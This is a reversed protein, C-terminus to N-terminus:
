EGRIERVVGQPNEEGVPGEVNNEGEVVDRGEMRLGVSKGDLLTPDWFYILNRRIIAARVGPNVAIGTRQDRSFNFEVITGLVSPNGDDSVSGAINIGNFRSGIITNHRITNGIARPWEVPKGQNDAYLHVGDSTTELWNYEVTNFFLVGIGRNWNAPMEVDLTSTAAYLFVGQRRQNAVRNRAFVNEWGGIWLQLGSMGNFAENGIVLNRAFLTTLLIKSSRDPLVDWARDLLFTRDRREGVRRVQGMGRGGLVVVYYESAIPESEDIDESPPLFPATSPLTLSDPGVAEPEGYYAYRMCTELLIMEGVNQETGAVDGFRPNEGKNYAIYNDDVSGRGTGMWVLRASTPGGGPPCVVTNKEIVCQSLPETRGQIAGTANPGIRSAGRLKNGIFEGQRVGSLYLPCGGTLDCNKVGIHKAYHIYIVQNEGEKGGVDAVRVNEIRIDDLWQNPDPHRVAIGINILGSGLLTLDELGSADGMMWIGVRGVSPIHATMARASVVDEAQLILVDPSPPPFGEEPPAWSPNKAFLFADINLGGGEQNVWRLQNAGKRLRIKGAKGWAFRDWGGTNPLNLLPIPEGENAILATRGGMDSIQSPSNDAAYRLWVTWEGEEGAVLRYELTDGKNHINWVSQNWRGKSALLFDPYCSADSTVKIITEKMGMGKITVGKPIRLVSKIEFEGAPLNVIGGGEKAMGELFAQLDGGTFKEEKPPKPKERIELGVPGGWGWEGGYGAHVWVQYDGPSLQPPIQFRLAYRDAEVVKAWLGERGEQCLYVFATQEDPLHALCQGFVRVTDGPHAIDPTCWYPQPANLRIPRGWVGNKEPWVIYLGDLVEQPITAILLDPSFHQVKVQWAQGYPSHASPGWFYLSDGLNEGLLFFSEDSAVTTTHSYILPANPPPPQATTELKYIQGPMSPSPSPVPWSSLPLALALSLFLSLM